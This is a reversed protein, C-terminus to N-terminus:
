RKPWSVEEYREAYAEFRGQAHQAELRHAVVYEHVKRGLGARGINMHYLTRLCALWQEPTDAVLQGAARATKGYTADSVLIPIGEGGRNFGIAGAELVPNDSKGRTFRDDAAPRIVFDMSTLWRKYRHGKGDGPGRDFAMARIKPWVDQPFRDYIEPYGCAILHLDRYTRLAESVPEIILDVSDSHTNSGLFGMWVEDPHAMPVINEWDRPNIQNPFCHVCENYWLADEALTPTSVTIMDAARMNKAARVTRHTKHGRDYFQPRAPNTHPVIFEQDDWDHVFMVRAKRKVLAVAAEWQAAHQRNAIVIDFRELNDFSIQGGVIVVEALGAEGIAKLPNDVRYLGVYGYQSLAYIRLKRAM